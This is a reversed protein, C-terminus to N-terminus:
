IEFDWRGFHYWSCVFIEVVFGHFCQNEGWIGGHIGSGSGSGRGFAIGGFCSLIRIERSALFVGIAAAFNANCAEVGSEIQHRVRSM